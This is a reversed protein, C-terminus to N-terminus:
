NKLQDIEDWLCKMKSYYETIEKANRMYRVTEKVHPEMSGTLWAVVMSNCTDWQDQKTADEKDRKVLGTVFGLKRKTALGLEMDCKWAKYNSPGNLKETIVGTHPGDSPHLYLPSLMDAM